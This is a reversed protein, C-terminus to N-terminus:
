HVGHRKLEKSNLGLRPILLALHWKLEKNLASSCLGFIKKKHRFLFHPKTSSIKELADAAGIVILRNPHDLYHLLSDFDNQTQV